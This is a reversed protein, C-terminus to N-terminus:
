HKGSLFEKWFALAGWRSLDCGLGTEGYTRTFEELKSTVEDDNMLVPNRTELYDNNGFYPISKACFYNCRGRKELAENHHLVLSDDIDFVLLATEQHRGTRYYVFKIDPVVTPKLQESSPDPSPESSPDLIIVFHYGPLVSVVSKPESVTLNM